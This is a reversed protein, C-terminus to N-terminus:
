YKQLRQRANLLDQYSIIHNLAPDYFYGTFEDSGAIKNLKAEMQRLAYVTASDLKGTVPINLAEQVQSINAESALSDSTSGKPTVTGSFSHLKSEISSVFSKLQSYAQQALIPDSSNSVVRQWKDLSKRLIAQQAGITSILESTNGSSMVSKLADSIKALAQATEIVIDRGEDHTKSELAIISSGLDGTGSVAGGFLSVAQGWLAKADDM